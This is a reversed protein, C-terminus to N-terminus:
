GTPAVSAQGELHLAELNALIMGPLRPEHAGHRWRWISLHTVGIRAAVAVDTWGDQRMARLKLAIPTDTM